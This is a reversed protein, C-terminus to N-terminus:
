EEDEDLYETQAYGGISVGTLNGKKVEEWIEEDHMQTVVLWSGAKILREGLVMDVQSVYSEVISFSDTEVLHLLNATMSHQNFNHCAKRIEEASYIDGHLDVEEPALVLFTAQKLEENTSKVVQVTRPSNQSQKDM